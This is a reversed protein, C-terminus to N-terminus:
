SSEKGYILMDRKSKARKLFNVTKKRDGKSIAKLMDKYYREFLRGAKLIERKNTLFIDAWLDPDSSAVRTTDKFGEAAYRLEQSPVSGALGFAVIHPLHSILSVSKDHSAPSMVKVIAGLSAWFKIVRKLSARDTATSSTVICPAKEFLGARAFEVGAHESGAMPHSGVFHIKRDKALSKEVSGVIWAKTSGADTIIAGEKAYKAATKVIGPISHVPSTVIILDAGNVGGEIFMTAKDVANCKLAKKLTSEHRFIGVVEDAIKRKKIALGISGGILGVGIIAVKKFRAM